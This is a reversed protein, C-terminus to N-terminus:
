CLVDRDIQPATDPLFQSLTVKGLGGFPATKCNNEAQNKTTAGNIWVQTDKLSPYKNPLKKVSDAVILDWQEPNTYIGVTNGKAKLESSMGDLVAANRGYAGGAVQETNREACLPSLGKNCQWNNGVEVDIWWTPNQIPKAHSANLQQAFTAVAAAAIEKGYEHACAISDDGHCNEGQFEGSAPWKKANTKGPNGSNIYISTAQTIQTGLCPNVEKAIGNNLGVIVFAPTNLKVDTGCQPYSLDVGVGPDLNITPIVKPSNDCGSLGVATLCFIALATKVRRMYTYRDINAPINEINNM